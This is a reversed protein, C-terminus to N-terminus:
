RADHAPADRFREGLYRRVAERWPELPRGLFAETAAVDLVSYRPRPVDPWFATRETEVVDASLGSVALVERAQEVRTAEGGDTVHWVGAPAERRLLEIVHDVVNATWSPRSWQDRVLRLTRGSRAGDLVHDVFGRGEGGYLWSVRVVLARPDVELVADEGEAKSRGYVTLPSRPHDPPYPTRARGDFVYDTSFHVVRAGAAAGARAVNGAGDRNVALAGEPDAEARDVRAQAACNLIVGPRAREVARTVADRDTVDLEARGLAVAELGLAALRRRFAGGLLGGAGTVLV